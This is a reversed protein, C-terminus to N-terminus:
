CKPPCKEGKEVILPNAADVINNGDADVGFFVCCVINDENMGFYARFSVCGKQNLLSQISAADFLESYILSHQFEPTTMKDVNARYRDIYAQATEPSIFHNSM